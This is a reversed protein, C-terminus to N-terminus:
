DYFLDDILEQTSAYNQREDLPFNMGRGESDRMSLEVSTLPPEISDFFAFIADLDAALSPNQKSLHGPEFFVYAYLETCNGQKDVANCYLWKENDSDLRFEFHETQAQTAADKLKDQMQQSITVLDGSRTNKIYARIEALSRNDGIERFDLPIGYKRNKDVIYIIHVDIKHKEQFDVLKKAQEIESQEITSLDSKTELAVWRRADQTRLDKIVHDVFIEDSPRTYGLQELEPLLEEMQKKLQVYALQMKYDDRYITAYNEIDRTVTFVVGKQEKFTMQYSYGVVFDANTESIIDVDMGYKEEIFEKTDREVIYDDMMYNVVWWVIVGGILVFPIALILLLKKNM